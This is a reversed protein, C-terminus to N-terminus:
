DGRLETTLRTAREAVAAILPVIADKLEFIRRVEVSKMGREFDDLLVDV